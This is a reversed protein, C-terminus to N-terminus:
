AAKRGKIRARVKPWTTRKAVRLDYQNQLNLWM